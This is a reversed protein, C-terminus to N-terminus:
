AKVLNLNDVTTRLDPSYLTTTGTAQLTASTRQLDSKAAGRV